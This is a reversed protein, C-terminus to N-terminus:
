KKKAPVRQIKAAEMKMYAREAGTKPLYYGGMEGGVLIKSLFYKDGYVDFILESEKSVTSAGTPETLIIVTVDGSANTITYEWTDARVFDYKGPPLTTKEVTFSFPIDASVGVQNAQAFATGCTLAIALLSLLLSGLYSRRM